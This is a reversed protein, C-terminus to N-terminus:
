SQISYLYLSMNIVILLLWSAAWWVNFQQSKLRSYLVAGMLTVSLLVNVVSVIPFPSAALFNYFAAPMLAVSGVLCVFGLETWYIKRRKSNLYAASLLLQMTWTFCPIVVGKSLVEIWSASKFFVKLSTSFIATVLFSLIFLIFINKLSPRLQVNMIM